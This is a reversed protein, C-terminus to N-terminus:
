RNKIRVPLGRSEWELIGGEVNYVNSFGAATFQSAAKYSRGGSRCFLYVPDDKSLGIDKAIAEPDLHDLPYNKSPIARREDYEEPTRVDILELTGGEQQLNHFQQPHISKIDADQSM